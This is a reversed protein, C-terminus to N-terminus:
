FWQSLSTHAGRIWTPVGSEQDRTRLVMRGGGRVGYTPWFWNSHPVQLGLFNNCDTIGSRAFQRSCFDFSWLSWWE